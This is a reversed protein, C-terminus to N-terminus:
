FPGASLYVGSLNIESKDESTALLARSTLWDRASLVHTNPLNIAKTVLFLIIQIFKHVTKM